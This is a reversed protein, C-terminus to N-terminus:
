KGIRYLRSATRIILNGRVAAPTAMIMEDLSNKAILKYEPGAEIVFGDGDESFLYIKGNAAIPSATFEGSVPDIRQKAYVEKGTRAEHCTLFGRDLLTYYYDGYILPTPNYAGAQPLYWAVFASGTEGTKLSIDGSAGPRIAYVPRVQDGVYGSSLYLLGFKAFPTPIAISSMGSFEWLLKGDLDYSRVHKTGNTILETRKENEWIFPTSWNTGEGARDIKTIVAGTKKDLVDIFSHEDNDDVVYLRGKYLIPSAATGWGYRTNKPEYARSWKANGNMDFAYLGTNGFLFYVMEGDTVATESAYTNKLHHSQKPVGRFVEKQWAIKGTKFDVSYVMWRHEDAPAKREGGFYLGKKPAEESNSAIVSTVFIRDGWVVPSSWGIGPIEAKWTVNETSSWRVPLDGEAVANAQAGRFGPWSDAVALAGAGVAVVAFIRSITM